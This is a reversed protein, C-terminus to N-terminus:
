KWCLKTNNNWLFCFCSIQSEFSCKMSATVLVNVTRWPGGRLPQPLHRWSFWLRPCHCLLLSINFRRERSGWILEFRGESVRLICLPGFRGPPGGSGGWDVGRFVRSTGTIQPGENMKILHFTTTYRSCRRGTRGRSSLLYHHDAPAACVGAPLRLRGRTASLPQKTPRHHPPPTIIM